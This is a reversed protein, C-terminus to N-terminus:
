KKKFTKWLLFLVLGAASYIILSLTPSAKEVRDIFLALSLFLGTGILASIQLPSLAAENVQLGYKDTTAAAKTPGIEVVIDTGGQRTNESVNKVTATWGALAVAKGQLGLISVVYYALTCHLVYTGPESISDIGGNSRTWLPITIWPFM